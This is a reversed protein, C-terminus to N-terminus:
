TFDHTSLVESQSSVEQGKALNKLRGSQWIM